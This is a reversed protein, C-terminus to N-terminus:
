YPTASSEVAAHLLERMHEYFKGKSLIKLSIEREQANTTRKVVISCSAQDL